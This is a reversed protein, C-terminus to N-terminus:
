VKELIAGLTIASLDSYVFRAGPLTDLNAALAEEFRTFQTEVQTGMWTMNYHPAQRLEELRNVAHTGLWGVLVILGAIAIAILADSVRRARRAMQPLVALRAAVGHSTIGGRNAGTASM